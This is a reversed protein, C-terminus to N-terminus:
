PQYQGTPRQTMGHKYQTSSRPGLWVSARRCWEEDEHTSHLSLLTYSRYQQLHLRATSPTTLPPPRPLLSQLSNISCSLGWCCHSAVSAVVVIGRDDDYDEEKDCSNPRQVHTTTSSGIRRPVHQTISPEGRAQRQQQTKTHTTTSSGCTLTTDHLSHSMMARYM